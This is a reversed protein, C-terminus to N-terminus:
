AILRRRRSPVLAVRGVAGGRMERSLPSNVEIEITVDGTVTITQPTSQWWERRYNAPRRSPPRRYARIRTPNPRVFGM